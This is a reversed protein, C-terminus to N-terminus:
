EVTLDGHIVSPSAPEVMKLAAGEKVVLYCYAEGGIGRFRLCLQASDTVTWEASGSNGVSQNVAYMIGDKRFEWALTQGSSHRYFTWKRGSVIAEMESKTLLVRNAIAAAAAAAESALQELKTFVIKRTKGNKLGYTGEFSGSPALTATIPNEAPTTFSLKRANGNVVLEAKLAGQGASAFGYNLDVSYTNEGTATIKRITLKRPRDDGDIAGHWATALEKELGAATTQAFAAPSTFLLVTLAIFALRAFSLM